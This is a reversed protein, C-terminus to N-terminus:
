AHKKAECLDMSVNKEVHVFYFVYFLLTVADRKEEKKQKVQM